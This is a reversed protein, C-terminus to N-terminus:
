QAPRCLHPLSAQLLPILAPHQSLAPCVGSLLSEMLMGSRPRGFREDLVGGLVQIAKPTVQYEALLRHAEEAPNMGLAAYHDGGGVPRTHKVPVQDIVVVSQGRDDCLKAWLLDLGWASRTGLFTPLLARLTDGTMIPSMVEAFNTRRYRFAPNHLTVYHSFYSDWTLAPQGLAAGSEEFVSFLEDIRAPEFLLDDDPMMVASYDLAEPHTEFFAHVGHYKSPAARNDFVWDGTTLGDPPGSEGLLTDNYALTILDWQREAPLHWDYHLARSGARILVLNRRRSALPTDTLLKM